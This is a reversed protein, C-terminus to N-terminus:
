KMWGPIEVDSFMSKWLADDEIDDDSEEDEEEEFEGLYDKAFAALKDQPLLDLLDEVIDEADISGDRIMDVLRDIYKQDDM